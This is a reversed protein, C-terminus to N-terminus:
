PLIFLAIPIEYLIEGSGESWATVKYGDSTEDVFGRWIRDM